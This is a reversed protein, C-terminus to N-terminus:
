GPYKASLFSARIARAAMFSTRFNTRLLSPKFYGSNIKEIQTFSRGVLHSSQTVEEEGM